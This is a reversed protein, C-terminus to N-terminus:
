QENASWRFDPHEAPTQSKTLIVKLETVKEPHAEAINNNEGPDHKLYFLELGQKNM